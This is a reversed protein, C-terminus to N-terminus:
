LVKELITKKLCANERSSITKQFTTIGSANIDILLESIKLFLIMTFKPKLFPVGSLGM